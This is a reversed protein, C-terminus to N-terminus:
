ITDSEAGEQTEREAAWHEIISGLLPTLNEYQTCWLEMESEDGTWYASRRQVEVMLNEIPGNWCGVSLYYGREGSTRALTADVGESGIPGVVMVDSDSNVLLPEGSEGALTGSALSVGAVRGSGYILAGGHLSADSVELAGRGPTGTVRAMGGVTANYVTAYSVAATGNLISDISVAGDLLTARGNLHTSGRAEAGQEVWAGDGLKTHPSIFGGVRPYARTSEIQHLTEGGVDRTKGTLRIGSPLPYRLPSSTETM